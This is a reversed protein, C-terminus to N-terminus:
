RPASQGGALRCGVSVDRDDPGLALRYAARVLRAGSRCSGGRVVRYSGQGAAVPDTMTRAPYPELPGAADACWEWVNGLMDQLGYPNATKRGVPHTEADSNGHYWAIADLESEVEPGSLEGVWTAATTGARCAREWEAESPLRAALGAVQANLRGIL